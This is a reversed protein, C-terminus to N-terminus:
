FKSASRLGLRRRATKLIDSMKSKGKSSKEDVIHVEEESSDHDGRTPQVPSHAPKSSAAGKVRVSENRQVPEREEESEPAPEEHVEEFQSGLIDTPFHPFSFFQRSNRRLTKQLAIDRQRQYAWMEQQQQMFIAQQVEMLSLRQEIQEFQRSPMPEQPHESESPRNTHDHDEGKECMIRAIAAPSIVGGLRLREEEDAIPVNSEFCLASILSPFLLSGKKRNACIRVQESIVRGVNIPKGSLIADVMAVRDKSVTKGHTSPLLRTKLFHYWVKAEPLLSARNVTWAGHSSKEWSTGPVCVRLLLEDWEHDELASLSEEYGDEDDQLHFFQNISQSDFAVRNGRVWVWDAADKPFNAYFERVISIVAPQPHKAFDRWNRSQVVSCVFQPMGLDDSEKFSFGKEGCFSRNCTENNHREQNAASSFKEVLNARRAVSKARRM